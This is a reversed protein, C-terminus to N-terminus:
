PTIEVTRTIASALVGPEHSVLMVIGGKQAHARMLDSLSLLAENDLGYTPEDFLWLPSPSISVRAIALRRKMGTSFRGVGLRKQVLEGRLGWVAMANDIENVTVIPNKLRVWFKLNKDATLEDNLGNSEPALYEVQSSAPMAESGNLWNITGSQPSLLGAILKILTSKGKGNGGKIHVVEGKAVSLSFDKILKRSSGYSFELNKIELM